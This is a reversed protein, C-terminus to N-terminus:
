PQGQRTTEEMEQLMNRLSITLVAGRTLRLAELINIGSDLLIGLVRCFRMSDMLRILQGWFPIKSFHELMIWKWQSPERWRLFLIYGLFGLILLSCGQLVLPFGQFIVQTLFPTDLGMSLFVEEFMPFALINLAILLVFTFILLFVPYAFANRIKFRFKYDGELEEAIQALVEPLKGGQEGAELMAKVHPAPPPKFLKVAESFQNGAKIEEKVESWGKLGKNKSRKELLELAVLMPIGSQLIMSLRRTIYVWDKLYEGKKLFDRLNEIVRFLIQSRPTITLPYYGQAFLLKRVQTLQPVEWVGQIIEGEKNLAKWSFARKKM